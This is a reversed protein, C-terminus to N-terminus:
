TQEITRKEDTLFLDPLRERAHSGSDSRPSFHSLGHAAADQTRIVECRMEGRSHGNHM